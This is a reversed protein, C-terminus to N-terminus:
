HLPWLWRSTSLQNHRGRRPSWTSTELLSRWIASGGDDLSALLGLLKNQWTDINDIEVEPKKELLNPFLQETQESRLMLCRIVIHM